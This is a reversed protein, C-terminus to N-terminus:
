CDGDLLRLFDKGAETLKWDHTGGSDDILGEIYLRQYTLRKARYLPTLPTLPQGAAIRRLLAIGATWRKTPLGEAPTAYNPFRRRRAILQDLRTADATMLAIVYQSREIAARVRSTADPTAAYHWTIARTPDIPKHVIKDVAPDLEHKV